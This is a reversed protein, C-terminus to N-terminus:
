PDDVYARFNKGTIADDILQAAALADRLRQHAPKM